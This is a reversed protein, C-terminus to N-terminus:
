TAFLRRSFDRYARLVAGLRQWQGRPIKPLLCRVLSIAAAFPLRRPHHKHVLLLTSHVSHYDQLPSRKGMTTSGKHWIEAAPCYGLTFGAATIRMGWDTDEAYIFYRDDLVGVERLTDTRVLMCCGSVFDMSRSGDRPASRPSGAGLMQTMGHWRSVVAGGLTEVRDPEHYKLITCGMAGARPDAQATAVMRSLADSAVVTDNNLLWAYGNLKLAALQRLALNNAGAFGLNAGVDVLSIVGHRAEAVAGDTRDARYERIATPKAIPPHTLPRLEDPTTSPPTETGTAWARLRVLSEDRSGNDCVIVRLDPYDSRLLSELCEITDRWGNYNVIVAYM